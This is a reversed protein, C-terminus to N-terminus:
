GATVVARVTGDPGALLVPTEAGGLDGVAARDEPSVAETESVVAAAELSKAGSAVAMAVATQLASLQLSPLAVTGAVYTRGTEDRVAAGEPVGNRARASRALTVIKRDEPDLASSDTM